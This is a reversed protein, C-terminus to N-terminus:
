AAMKYLNRTRFMLPRPLGLTFRVVSGFTSVRCRDWHCLQPLVPVNNYNWMLLTALWSLMGRVITSFTYGAYSKAPSRQHLRCLLRLAENMLCVHMDCGGSLTMPLSGRMRLPALRPGALVVSRSHNFCGYQFDHSPQCGYFYLCCLLFLYIYDSSRCRLALVVPQPDWISLCLSCM